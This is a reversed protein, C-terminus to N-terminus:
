RLKMAPDGFLNWTRRVDVDSTARKAAMAAKGIATEEAEYLERIMAQNIESQPSSDTLGSSAWVAVAGGGNANLLAKALSTSYVDQFYGNLCTMSLVVPARTGNTLAAADGSSFLGDAWVETSGHGVFNVLSQGLNLEMMVEAHPQPDSGALIQTASVSAPLLAKVAATYTAFNDTPSQEVGAVLLVHRGAGGSQDYAILRNVVTTADAVTEAPIRGIAMQPVGDNNFDAFWDDSATELLNTDVLKVPVLDPVATGLYNRPDFTGNGMLLVYEPPTSWATRATSLFSRIAYPSKVGFSFEDYLEEVDVVRVTHGQSQRLSALQAASSLLSEHSIIVMDAGPQPSHWASPHNATISAPTDFQSSGVALLTRTGGGQPAVSISFHGARGSV